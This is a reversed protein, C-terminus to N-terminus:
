HRIRIDLRKPATDPPCEEVLRALIEPAMHRIQTAWAPHDATVVLTDGQLRHPQVHAAVSPGVLEDWKGFLISLVDAGSMGMRRSVESLAESM